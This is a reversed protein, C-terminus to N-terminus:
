EESNAEKSSAKANAERHNVLFPAFQHEIPKPVIANIVAHSDDYRTSLVKGKTHLLALLEGRDAPIRYHNRSVRDRLQDNLRHILTEMGEGTACSVPIADPFRHGLQQRAGPDTVLDIKNLVTIIRKDEAGLERLVTLTTRQFVEIAPNSADLVHILFDAIVAEELTAKFAEVLRHPLNRVFGVTDTLLLTQNDPLELRRTTTDLTAFLKDEATVKAKTLHNLLSSKGANTYGVIAALPVPTKQREQRQVHRIRRVDKLDNKLKSIRDRALRKDVEIQKEGEGRAAAAGGKGGGAGGRQRDLHAWMHAMRPLAYQMRALQVQLRAERTQARENFIDLIVEQRDIVLMGSAKEWNRQQAPTLENDFVIVDCELSKALEILEATKGTGMLFRANLQAIRVLKKEIVPIGLTDVLEALEDLLSQAEDEDKRDRYVAILLAREVLGPKELIDFM